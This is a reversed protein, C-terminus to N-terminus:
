RAVEAAVLDGVQSTSYGMRGAAMSAMKTGTVVAVADEVCTAAQAEGLERLMMAASCVAAMPNIVGM